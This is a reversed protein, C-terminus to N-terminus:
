TNEEWESTIGMLFAANDRTHGDNPSNVAYYVSRDANLITGAAPRSALGFTMMSRAIGPTGPFTWAQALFDQYDGHPQTPRTQSIIADDGDSPGPQLVITTQGSLLSNFLLFLLSYFIKM